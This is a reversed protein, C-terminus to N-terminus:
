NRMLLECDQLQGRPWSMHVFANRSVAATGVRDACLRQWQNRNRVIRVKENAAWNQKSPGSVSVKKSGRGLTTHGRDVGFITEFLNTLPELSCSQRIDKINWRIREILENNMSCFNSWMGLYRGEDAWLGPVLLV